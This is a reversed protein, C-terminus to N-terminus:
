LTSASFWNGHLGAPVRFPLEVTAVPGAAVDSADLVIWDSRLTELDTRFTVYYGREGHRDEAPAFVVEDFVKTASSWETISGTSTDVRLLLNYEGVSMRSGKASVNFYRHPQTQLRNDIRPFKTIRDDFTELKVNGAGVDIHARTVAGTQDPAKGLAFRRFKAFDVVIHDGEEFGNAFHYAWFPDAQIWRV